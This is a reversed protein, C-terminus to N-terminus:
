SQGLDQEPQICREHRNDLPKGLAPARTRVVTLQRSPLSETALDADDVRWPAANPLRVSPKRHYHMINDTSVMCDVCMSVRILRDLAERNSAMWVNSWRDLRSGCDARDSVEELLGASLCAWELGFLLVLCEADVLSAWWWREWLVGDRIAGPAGSWGRGLCVRFLAEDFADVVRELVGRAVASFCRTVPECFGVLLFVFLLELAAAAAAAAALGRLLLRVRGCDSLSCAGLDDLDSLVFSPSIGSRLHVLLLLLLKRTAYGSYAYGAGGFCRERNIRNKPFHPSTPRRRNPSHREDRALDRIVASVTRPVSLVAM